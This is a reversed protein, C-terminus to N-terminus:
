RPIESLTAIAAKAAQGVTGLGDFQIKENDDILAHLQPLSEKAKLKELAYIALVRMDPSNDALTEILPRIASRDGIEGLSWPVIWNVDPDKLLPVLIPVARSDRLNGFLHVAYYRDDIIQRAPSPRGASNIEFVARKTSHDELIAKIVQFGRDDGLSAFIFAANGRCRMDENGLWPELGQLVTKDQLAVIEKAVEFQKWFVTASTFQEVLGSVSKSPNPDSQGFLTSLLCISALSARCIVGFARVMILFGTATELAFEIIRERRCLAAREESTGPLRHRNLRDLFFCLGMPQFKEQKVAWQILCSRNQGALGHARKSTLKSCRNPDERGATKM